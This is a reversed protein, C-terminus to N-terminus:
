ACRRWRTTATPRRQALQAAQEAMALAEQPPRPLLAHAQGRRAISQFDAHQLAEGRAQLKRFADLAATYDGKDLSLDGPLAPRHRLRARRGDAGPDLAEQLLEATADLRGLRRMTDATHMLCAGISRPWGTPRALDLASEMWELAAHHDNLLTFDLGINIAATIAM